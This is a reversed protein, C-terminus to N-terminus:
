SQLHKSKNNFLCILKGNGIIDEKELTAISSTEAYISDDVIVMARGLPPSAISWINTGASVWNTIIDAGNIIPKAGNGYASFTIPNGALGSSPIILQERWTDGRRFLIFDGPLFTSNNIKAITRWSTTISTGNNADNGSSSVYYTTSSATLGFFIFLLLFVNHIPGKM